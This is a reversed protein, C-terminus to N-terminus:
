NVIWRSVIWMKKWYRRKICNNREINEMTDEFYTKDKKSIVENRVKESITKIQNIYDNYALWIYELNNFYIELKDIVKINVGKISNLWILTDRNNM